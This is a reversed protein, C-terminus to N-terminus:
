TNIRITNQGRVALISIINLETKLALKKYRSLCAAASTISSRCLYRGFVSLSITIGGNEPRKSFLQFSYWNM